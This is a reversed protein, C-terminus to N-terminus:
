DFRLYDKFNPRSLHFFAPSYGTNPSKKRLHVCFLGLHGEGRSLFFVQIGWLVMTFELLSYQITTLIYINIGIKIM